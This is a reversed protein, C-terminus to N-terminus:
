GPRKRKVHREVETLLRSGARGDGFGLIRENLFREGRELVAHRFDVDTMLQRLVEVLEEEDQASGGSGGRVYGIWDSRQPDFVVFPKRAAVAEIGFTSNGAVVIDAAALAETPSFGPDLFLNGRNYHDVIERKVGIDEYAGTSPHLRIVVKADTLRAGVRCVAQLIKNAESPETAPVLNVYPGAAFLIVPAERVGIRQRLADRNCAHVRERLHGLEDNGIAVIHPVSQDALRCCEPGYVALMDANATPLAGPPRFLGLGHEINVSLIGRQRALMVMIRELGVQDQPVLVADLALKDFVRRLYRAQREFTGWAECWFSHAAHRVVPWLPVGRFSLPSQILTSDLAKWNRSAEFAASPAEPQLQWEAFIVRPNGVYPRVFETLVVRHQTERVIAEVLTAAYGHPRILLGLSGSQGLHRKFWSTTSLLDQVRNMGTRSRRSPRPVNWDTGESVPAAKVSEIALGRTTAYAQSVRAILSEDEALLIRSPQLQDLMAIQRCVVTFVRKMEYDIYQGFSLDLRKTSDSGGTLYWSQALTQSAHGVETLNHYGLVDQGTVFKLDRFRTPLLVDSDVNIVAADGAVGRGILEEM